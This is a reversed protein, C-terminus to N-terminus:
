QWPTAMEVCRDTTILEKVVADATSTISDTKDRQTYTQWREWSQVMPGVSGFPSKAFPRVADFITVSHYYITVGHYYGWVM